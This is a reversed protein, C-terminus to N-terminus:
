LGAEVRLAVRRHESARLGGDVRDDRLEGVGISPVVARDSPNCLGHAKHLTAGSGLRRLGIATTNAGAPLCAVIPTACMPTRREANPPQLPSWAQSLRYVSSRCARFMSRTAVPPKAPQPPPM